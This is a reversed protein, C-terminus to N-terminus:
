RSSTMAVNHRHCSPCETQKPVFPAEWSRHCDNCGWLVIHAVVTAGGKAGGSVSDLSADDLAENKKETESM